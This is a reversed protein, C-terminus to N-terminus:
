SSPKPSPSPSQGAVKTVDIFEGPRDVSVKKGWQSLRIREAKGDIAHVALPYPRGELAVYLYSNDDRLRIVPAGAFTTVEEKRLTGDVTLTDEVIVSLDVSKAADSLLANGAPGGLWKGELLKAGAAGASARNFANNGRLYVQDRLRRVETGLEGVEITGSGTTGKVVTDIALTGDEQLFSGVFHVSGAQLAAERAKKLIEAPPLTEVGNADPGLTVKGASTGDADVAAPPTAGGGCGSLAALVLACSALVASRRLGRM